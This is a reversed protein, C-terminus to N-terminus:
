FKGNMGFGSGGRQKPMNELDKLKIENQLARFLLKAIHDNEILTELHKRHFDLDKKSQVMQPLFDIGDLLTLLYIIQKPPDETADLAGILTNFLNGRQREIKAQVVNKGFIFFGEHKRILIRKKILSEVILSKVHTMEQITMAMLIDFITKENRISRIENMMYNLQELSSQETNIFSIKSNLLTIREQLFLDGICGVIVAFLYHQRYYENLKNEPLTELLFVLQESISLSLVSNAMNNEQAQMEM